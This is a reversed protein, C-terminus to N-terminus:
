KWGEAWLALRQATIDGMGRVRRILYASGLRRIFYAIDKTTVDQETVDLEAAIHLRVCWLKTPESKDRAEYARAFDDIADMLPAGKHTNPHIKM